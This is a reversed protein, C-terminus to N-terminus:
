LHGVVAQPHTDASSKERLLGRVDGTTLEAEFSGCVVADVGPLFEM